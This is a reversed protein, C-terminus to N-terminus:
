NTLSKKLANEIVSKEKTLAYHTAVEAGIMDAFEDVTGDLIYEMLDANECFEPDSNKFIELSKRTKPFTFDVYDFQLINDISDNSVTITGGSYYVLANNYLYVGMRQEMDDYGGEPDECRCVPMSNKLLYEHAQKQLADIEKLM